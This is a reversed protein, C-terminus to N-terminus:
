LHTGIHKVIIRGNKIGEKGPFFYIRDQKTRDVNCKNFKTHLECIIEEPQQTNDNFISIRLERTASRDSQPSCDINTDRKFAEGMEINSKGELMMSRFSEQYGDLSSLHEVIEERIEEFKRNLSNITTGIDSVFYLRPFCEELDEVFDSKKEMSLYKRVGRLYEDVTCFCFTNKTIGAILVKVGNNKGIENEKEEFLADEINSTRGLWKVIERKMDNLSSDDKSYLWDWFSIDENIQNNMFLLAGQNYGFFLAELFNDLQIYSFTVLANGIDKDWLIEKTM